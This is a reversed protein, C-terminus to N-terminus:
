SIAPRIVASLYLGFSGDADACSESSGAGVDFNVNGILSHRRQDSYLSHLANVSRSIKVLKKTLRVDAMSVSMTLSEMRETVAKINM